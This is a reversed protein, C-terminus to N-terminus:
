LFAQKFLKELGYDVIAIVLGFAISFVFVATVLRWTEGRTPWTVMRLEKYSSRVYGPTFRRSRTLFGGVGKQRPTVFHYEKKATRGVAKIPKSAATATRRIRAGSPRAKAQKTSKDRMTEAKRLPRKVKKEQEPM